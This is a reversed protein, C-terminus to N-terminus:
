FGFRRFGLWKFDTRLFTRHVAFQFPIEMQRGTSHQALKYQVDLYDWGDIQDGEPLMLNEAIEYGGAGAVLNGSVAFRYTISWGGAEQQGSPPKYQGSAGLFLLEGAPFGAFAKKNVTGTMRYVLAIYRLSIAAVNAVKSIELKTEPIDTGEAELKGESTKVGILRGYNQVTQGTAAYYRSAVGSVSKPLALRIKKTGGVTDFGWDGGIAQNSSPEEGSPTGGLDGGFTGDSPYDSFPDLDAGPFPDLLSPLTPVDALDEDSITEGPFAAPSAGPDPQGYEVSVEWVNGGLPRPTYGTRTFGLLKYPSEAQIAALAAADDAAGVVIFELSTGPDRDSFRIVRSTQLERYIAM